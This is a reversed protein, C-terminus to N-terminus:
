GVRLYCSLDGGGGWTGKISLSRLRILRDLGSTHCVTGLLALLAVLRSLRCFFCCPNLFNSSGPRKGMGMGRRRWGAAAGDTFMAVAIFEGSNM